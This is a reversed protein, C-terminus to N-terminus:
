ILFNWESNKQLLNQLSGKVAGLASLLAEVPTMGTDSGGLEPPEDLLLEFDRAKCTMQLGEGKGVQVTAKFNMDAM